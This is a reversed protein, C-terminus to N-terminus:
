HIHGSFLSYLLILLVLLTIIVYAWDHELAFAVISFLVRAIPTLILLLLGLEVLGDSKLHWADEVISVVRRPQEGHFVHRDPAPKTGEQVLYLIGGAAVVVAALVVGARLLNGIIQEVREDTWGTSPSRRPPIVPGSPSASEAM